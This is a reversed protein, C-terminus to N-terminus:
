GILFQLILVFFASFSSAVSCCYLYIVKAFTLRSDKKRKVYLYNAVITTVWSVAFVICSLFSLIIGFSM